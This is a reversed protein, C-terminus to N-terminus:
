GELNKIQQSNLNIQFADMIKGTNSTFEGYLTKGNNVLKINLFGFDNHNIIVSWPQKQESKAHSHGGTGVTLYIQGDPNNYSCKEYDTIANNFMVPYTREYAHQHGSIVLDVGYLDFMPQLEDRLDMFSGSTRSSYMPLHTFVITFDTEPNDNAHKLDTRIFDLQMKDNSITEQSVGRAREALTIDAPTVALFHINEYDFSYYDNNLDYYERLKQKDRPLDGDGLVIYVNEKGIIKSSEIWKEATSQGLDGVLLIIEPDSSQINALTKISNKNIGFDAATAINLVNNSQFEKDIIPFCIQEQFGMRYFARDVLLPNSITVSSIIILSIIISTVIVAKKKTKM